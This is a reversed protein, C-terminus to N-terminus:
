VTDGQAHECVASIQSDPTERGTTTSYGDVRFYAWKPNHGLQRRDERWGPPEM